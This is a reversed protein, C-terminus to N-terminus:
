GSSWYKASNKNSASTQHVSYRSTKEPLNTRTEQVALIDVNREQMIKFAEVRSCDWKGNTNWTAIRLTHPNSTDAKRISSSGKSSGGKLNPTILLQSVNTVGNDRLTRNPNLPTRSNLLIQCAM